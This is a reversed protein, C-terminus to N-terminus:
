TGLVVTLIRMLVLYPHPVFALQQIHEKDMLGTGKGGVALLRQELIHDDLKLHEGM